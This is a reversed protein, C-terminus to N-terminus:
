RYPSASQKTEYEDKLMQYSAGQAVPIMSLVGAAAEGGAAGGSAAAAITGAGVTGAVPLVIIKGDAKAVVQVASGESVRAIETGNLEKVHVTGSISVIQGKNGDFFVGGIINRDKMSVKELNKEDHKVVVMYESTKVVLSSEQPVVFSMKGQELTVNYIGFRGETSIRSNEGLEIRTGDKFIFSMKGKTTKFDSSSVVPYIGKIENWSKGVLTYAKGKPNVQGIPAVAYAYAAVLTLSMVILLIKIMGKRSM